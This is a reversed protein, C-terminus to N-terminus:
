RRLQGLAAELRRVTDKLEKVEPIDLDSLPRLTALASEYAYDPPSAAEFDSYAAMGSRQGLLFTVLAHDALAWVDGRRQERLQTRITEEAAALARRVDLPEVDGTAPVPGALSGPEYLIRGVLRNVLNYSVAGQADVEFSYGEDYARLSEVHHIRRDEPGQAELAWRRQIGGALGLCDALETMLRAQWERTAPGRMEERLREIAMGVVHVANGYQEVGQDRLNKARTKLERITQLLNRSSPLEGWQAIETAIEGRIRLHEPDPSLRLAQVVADGLRLLEDRRGPHRNRLYYWAALWHERAGKALESAFAPNPSFLVQSRGSQQPDAGLRTEVEQRLTQHPTRTIGEQRWDFCDVVMRYTADHGLAGVAVPGARGEIVAQYYHAADRFPQSSGAVHYSIPLFLRSLQGHQTLASSTDDAQVVRATADSAPASDAQGDSAILNLPGIESSALRVGLEFFVNQRWFTWDVICCATWRIHEYLAQGVLRPSTIDVMRIIPRGPFEIRLHHRVLRWHDAYRKQFPCLVLVVDRVSPQGTVTEPIPCRVGDYAPLDLYDRHTRLQLLGDRIAGGIQKM